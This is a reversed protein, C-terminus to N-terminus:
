ISRTCFCTIMTKKQLCIIEPLEWPTRKWSWLSGYLADTLPKRWYDIADAWVEVRYKLRSSKLRRKASEDGSDCWVVVRPLLSGLSSEIVFTAKIVVDVISTNGLDSKFARSTPDAQEDQYRIGELTDSLYSTKEIVVM